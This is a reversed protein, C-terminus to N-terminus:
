GYQCGRGRGAGSGSKWDGPPAAIREDLPALADLLAFEPIWTNGLPTVDPLSDGAFATLLKEHASLVPMQQLDVHIGPNRREFEPLLRAVQQGEFGMVWFTVTERSDRKETCGPLLVVLLCASACWRMWAGTAPAFRRPPMPKARHMNATWGCPNCTRGSRRSSRRACARPRKTRAPTPTREPRRRMKRPSTRARM